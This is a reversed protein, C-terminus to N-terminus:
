DHMVPIANVYTMRGIADLPGSALFLGHPVVVKVVVDLKGASGLCRMRGLRAPRGQHGAQLGSEERASEVALM